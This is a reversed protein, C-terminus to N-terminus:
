SKDGPLVDMLKERLEEMGYPKQVFGALGKGAFRRTADQENYGSCLIVTVDPRIRRLEGFAQEGDMRPMTLDLLVCDIEDAHAGFVEVAERGDAAALVGFGMRALMEEGVARVGDEDDAILVTGRGRWRGRCSGRSM